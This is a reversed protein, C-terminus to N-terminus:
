LVPPGTSPPNGDPLLIKLTGLCRLPGGAMPQLPLEARYVAGVTVATWFRM